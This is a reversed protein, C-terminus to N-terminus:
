PEGSVMVVGVPVRARNVTRPMKLGGLPPEGNPDTVIEAARQSVRNWCGWFRYVNTLIFPPSVAALMAASSRVRVEKGLALTCVRLVNMSLWVEPSEWTSFM